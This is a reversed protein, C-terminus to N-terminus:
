IKWLLPWFHSIKARNEFRCGGKSAKHNWFLHVHRLDLVEVKLSSSLNREESEFM